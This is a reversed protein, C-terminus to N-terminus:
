ECFRSSYGNNDTLSVWAFRNQISAGSIGFTNPAGVLKYDSYDEDGSGAPVLEFNVAKAGPNLPKARVYFRNVWKGRVKKYVKVAQYRPGGIPAPPDTMRWKCDLVVERAQATSFGLVLALLVFLSKM